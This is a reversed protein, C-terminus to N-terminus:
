GSCTSFSLKQLNQIALILSEIGQHSLASVELITGSFKKRFDKIFNSSVERDIKNLVILHPKKLIEKNYLHIEDKLIKFDTLPDRGEEGSIDIVFILASTREIHKLFGLGLGKNKHAGQIIGPIDAILTRFFDESPLYGLQPHLTTFPYPAVKAVVKTLASLLTSKGANPMGILGIDAILKLELELSRNEGEKGPTCIDPTQHTPSRFVHNGKGGKGGECILIREGDQTLDHLVEKTKSNKILTGCPVKLILDEGAKGQSLNSGGNQGSKAQISRLNRFHDLDLFQRDAEIYISGGKGGNGGTPGGKPIYKERRWAVIGNGGKGGFFNITVQDTFM